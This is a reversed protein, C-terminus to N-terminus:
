SLKNPKYKILFGFPNYNNYEEIWNTLSLTSTLYQTSIVDTKVNDIPKTQIPTLIFNKKNQKKVYSDTSINFKYIKPYIIEYFELIYKIYSESLFLDLKDTPLKITSDSLRYITDNISNRMSKISNNLYTNGTDIQLSMIIKIKNLEDAKTKFEKINVEIYGYLMIISKLVLPNTSINVVLNDDNIGNDKEKILIDKIGILNDLKDIEYNLNLFEFPYTSKEFINEIKYNNINIFHENIKPFTFKLINSNSV